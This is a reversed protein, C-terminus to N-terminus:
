QFINSNHDLFQKQVNSINEKFFFNWTSSFTSCDLVMENLFHSFWLDVFLLCFNLRTRYFLQILKIEECRLLCFYKIRRVIILIYRFIKTNSFIISFHTHAHTNTCTHTHKLYCFFKIKIFCKENEFSLSTYTSNANNLLIFLVCNSM